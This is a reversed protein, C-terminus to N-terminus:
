YRAVVESGLRGPLACRPGSNRRWRAILLDPWAAHQCGHACRAANGLVREEHVDRNQDLVVGRLHRYAPARLCPSYVSWGVPPRRLYDRYCWRISGHAAAFSDWDEYVTRSGASGSISIESDGRFSVGLRSSHSHDPDGES